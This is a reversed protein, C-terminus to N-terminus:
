NETAMATATTETATQEGDAIEEDGAVVEEGTNMQTPPPPLVTTVMEILDEIGEGM